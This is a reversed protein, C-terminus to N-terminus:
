SWHPSHSQSSVSFFLSLSACSCYWERDEWSRFLVLSAPVCPGLTPWTHASCGWAAETLQSHDWSVCGAESHAGLLFPSFPPVAGKLWPTNRQLACPNMNGPGVSFSCTGWVVWLAFIIEGNKKGNWPRGRDKLSRTYETLKSGILQSRPCIEWIRQTENGWWFFPPSLRTWTNM